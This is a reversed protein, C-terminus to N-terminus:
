IAKGHRHWFGLPIIDRAKLMQGRSVYPCFLFESGKWAVQKSEFLQGWLREGRGGPGIQRAGRPGLGLGRELM